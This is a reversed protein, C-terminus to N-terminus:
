EIDGCIGCDDIEADGGCEGFCDEINGLCDCWGLNEPYNCCYTEGGGYEGDCDEADSDYNCANIDNCGM